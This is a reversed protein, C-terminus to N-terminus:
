LVHPSIFIMLEKRTDKKSDRRFLHGIGPLDGLGPVQDASDTKGESYIGGIVVISQDRTVLSTRIESKTIPPNQKSTDATDKNVAITLQMNGDGVISPTVALRLGAEKFQIQTGEQSVTEYPVEDGQFIVAEQNDLTFVRPNSIVKSLGQAEMATLELKLQSSSGIGGLFGIGGFPTTVALNSALGTSDGLTVGNAISGAVGGVRVNVPKGNNDVFVDSGDVGLRAGLAHQFDDSVEVIFAEIFVQKTRTDTEKIVKSILEMEAKHAKVIIQNMREDVTIEAQAGPISSASSAAGKADKGGIGLVGELMIKAKDPKTYYLKFIETYVPEAAKALLMAQQQTERRKRDFEELQMLTDQNHIRIISSKDDVHKAMKKVQLVSDLASTWPVNNLQATVSGQVEDSVLLNMGTIRSFMQAFTRIDMNDVNLDISFTPSEDKGHMTVYDLSEERNIQKRAKDHRTGDKSTDVMPGYGIDKESRTGSQTIFKGKDMLSEQEILPDKFAPKEHHACSGALVTVCLMLLFNSLRKM